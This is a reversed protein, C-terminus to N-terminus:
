LIKGAANKVNEKLLTQTKPEGLIESGSTEIFSNKL